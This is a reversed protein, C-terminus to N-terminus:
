RHDSSRHRARRLIAQRYNKVKAKATTAEFLADELDALGEYLDEIIGRAHQEFVQETDAQDTDAWTKLGSWPKTKPAEQTPTPPKPPKPGKPKPPRPISPATYSPGQNQLPNNQDTM